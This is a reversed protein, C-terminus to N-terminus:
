REITNDKQKKEERIKNVEDIEKDNETLDIEPFIDKNSAVRAIM